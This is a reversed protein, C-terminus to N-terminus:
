MEPHMACMTAKSHNLSLNVGVHSPPGVDVGVSTAVSVSSVEQDTIIGYDNRIPRYMASVGQGVASYIDYTLSPIPLNPSQANVMGDKDRNFDLLASPSQKDQFHLYGYAPSEVIRSDEKLKNQSYFGKAYPSGFIGWMAGGAKFTATVSVNSMAMNIQPTYSPHALSLTATASGFAKNATKGKETVFMRQRSFGVNYLGAKSNYGANIGFMGIKTRLGLSPNVGIGEQSDMSVDLGASSTVESDQLKLFCLGRM